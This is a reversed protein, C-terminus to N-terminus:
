VLTSDKGPARQAMVNGMEQTIVNWAKGQAQLLGSEVSLTRHMLPQESSGLQSRHELLAPFSFKRHIQPCPRPEAGDKGPSSHGQNNEDPSHSAGPLNHLSVFFARFLTHTVTLLLLILGSFLICATPIAARLDLMILMYLGLATLYFAIGCCFLGVAAHRVR